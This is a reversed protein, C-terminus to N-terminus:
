CNKTQNVGLREQYNGFRHKPFEWEDVLKILFDFESIFEDFTGSEGEDPTSKLNYLEKATM